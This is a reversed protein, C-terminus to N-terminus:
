NEEGIWALMFVFLLNKMQEDRQLLQKACIHKILPNLKNKEEM